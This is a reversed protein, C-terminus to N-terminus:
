RRLPGVPSHVPKFIDYDRVPVPIELTWADLNEDDLVHRLPLRDRNQQIWQALTAAQARTKVLVPDSPSQGLAVPVTREVLFLYHAPVTNAKLEGDIDTYPAEYWESVNAPMQKAMLVFLDPYLHVARGLGLPYGLFGTILTWSGSPYSADAQLYVQIMESTFYHYPRVPAAPSIQWAMAGVLAAPLVAAPRMRGLLQELLAWGLGAAIALGLAGFEGGREILVRNSVGYSPLLYVVLGMTTCAAVAGLAAVEKGFWRAALTLIPTLLAALGLVGLHVPNIPPREALTQQLYDFSTAHWHQGSALAVAMPLVALAGAGGVWGILGPLRRWAPKGGHLLAVLGTAGMAAIAFVTAVPHTFAAVGAAAAATARDPPRGNCLYAFTYWAAPLVFILGFEESQHGVHRPLNMPLLHPVVGYLTAAIIVAGMSRTTKHVFFLVSLLIGLGVLPGSIDLVLVANLATFKRLLSLVAYMGRPYVEDHYIVPYDADLPNEIYKAWAINVPADSFAPAPTAFSEPFLVQVSLVLAVLLLLGGIATWVGPRKSRWTKVLNTAPLVLRRTDFLDYLGGVIRIRLSFRDTAPLSLVRTWVAVLACMVLLVPAEYLRVYALLHVVSILGFTMWIGRTVWPSTEKDLPAPLMLWPLGVVLLSTALLVRILSVAAM